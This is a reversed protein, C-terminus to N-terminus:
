KSKEYLANLLNKIRLAEKTKPMEAICRQWSPSDDQPKVEDEKEQLITVKIINTESYDSPDTLIMKKTSIKIRHREAYKTAEKAECEILFYEGNKLWLMPRLSVSLQTERYKYKESIM